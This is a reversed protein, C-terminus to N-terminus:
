LESVSRSEINVSGLAGLEVGGRIGLNWGGESLPLVVVM